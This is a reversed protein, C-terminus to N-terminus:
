EQSHTGAWHCVIASVITFSYRGLSMCYSYCKSKHILLGIKSNLVKDEVDGSKRILRLDPSFPKVDCLRRKEDLLEEPEASQNICQFIYFNIDLLQNFLPFTRAVKWLEQSLFPLISPFLDIRHLFM